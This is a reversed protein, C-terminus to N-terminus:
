LQASTRLMHTVASTIVYWYNVHYSCGFCCILLYICSVKRQGRRMVLCVGSTVHQVKDQQAQLKEQLQQKEDTVERLARAHRDREVSLLRDSKDRWEAALESELRSM